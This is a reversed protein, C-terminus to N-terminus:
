RGEFNAWLSWHSDSGGSATLELTLPTGEVCADLIISQAPQTGPDLESISADNADRWDLGLETAVKGLIILRPDDLETFWVSEFNAGDNTGGTTVTAASNGDPPFIETISRPMPLSVASGPGSARTKVVAALCMGYLGATPFLEGSELTAEDIKEALEPGTLRNAYSM